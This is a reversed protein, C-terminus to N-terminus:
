IFYTALKAKWLIEDDFIEQGIFGKFIVNYITLDENLEIETITQILFEDEDLVLNTVPSFNIVVLNTLADPSSKITTQKNCLELVQELTEVPYLLNTYNKWGDTIVDNNIIIRQFEYGYQRVFM